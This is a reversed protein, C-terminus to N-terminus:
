DEWDGFDAQKPRDLASESEEPLSGQEESATPEAYATGFMTVCNPCAANGLSESEVVVVSAGKAHAKNRLDNRCSAINAAVTGFNAGYECSVEGLVQLETSQPLQKQIRVLGAAESHITTQPSGCACFLIVSISLGRAFM